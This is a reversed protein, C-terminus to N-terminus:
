SLARSVADARGARSPRSGAEGGMLVRDGACREGPPIAAAAAAGACRAAFDPAEIAAFLSQLDDLVFYTRQFGDILYGSRLVRDLDFAIRLPQPSGVAHRTEAHSSLIGAGFARLGGDGERLLGFEVAYWYLRALPELLAPRAAMLEVGRRGYAAVFGAFVPDALLPVHGFFDHFLDPEALYDIEEPRRMWITVPFRRAALHAFFQAEPILGPVGVLRWGTLRALQTSVADFRPIREPEVGLRGLGEYFARTAHTPLLASQRRYLRRWLAHEADSYAEWPQALTYDGNVCGYDGRLAVPRSTPAQPVTAM